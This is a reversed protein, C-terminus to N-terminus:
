QIMIDVCWNLVDTIKIKEHNIYNHLFYKVLRSLLEVKFDQDTNRILNLFM